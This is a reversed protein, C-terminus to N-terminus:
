AVTAEAVAPPRRVAVICNMPMGVISVHHAQDQNGGCCHYLDDSEVPHDYFTVHEGGGHWAFRMIDGPQPREGNEIDVKTGYNDWAPAWAFRDTDDPGTFVPPLGAEALMGAVFGGCWPWYGGSALNNCYKALGQINPSTTKILNLLTKIMPPPGGSAWTFGVFTRAKVLWPPDATPASPMTKVLAAMTTAGVMATAQKRVGEVRNTWGNHFYVWGGLSKLFALRQDCIKNVLTAADAQATAAITLPGIEGDESTGVLHELAKAARSPGSNVGYDFVCYDIGPPLQGCSMVEWYNQRYIALIQAQPAQWVDAPLGPHTQRWSDWERQTIGRSTRGGPDHPDDDNGGEWKLTLDVCAPFRDADSVLFGAQAVKQGQILANIAGLTALATREDQTSDSALANQALEQQSAAMQADLAIKALKVQLDTAVKRDAAVKQIQASIAILPNM